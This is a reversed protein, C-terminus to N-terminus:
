NLLPVLQKALATKEATAKGGLTFGRLQKASDYYLARVGEPTLDIQWEGDSIPPPTAVVIPYAPTKVVVPMAPYSLKTPKGALTAALTRAQNMLPMVYPLVLGELEICDGLAYVHENSTTLYRDVIVGHQVALGAQNALQTSPHLGTAALIVDADLHTENALFLRYGQNKKEIYTVVTDFHWTVGLRSLAAQLQRGTEENLLRNLPYSAADIMEIHKKGALDNAFECGILGAGIIAITKADDAKDRFKAYDDLNNVTFFDNAGTGVLPPRRQYAGIALVLKQYAFEETATKVIQRALDLMEVTTHTKIAIKLQSAMQEASFTALEQPKKGQAYANSLMPKSYFSGHDATILLLPTEADLKRFERALTYGALGTGIIIIPAM